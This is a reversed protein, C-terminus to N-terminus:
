TTVGTVSTVTANAHEVESVFSMCDDGGDAFCGYGIKHKNRHHGCVCILPHPIRTTIKAREPDFTARGMVFGVCFAILLGFPYAWM